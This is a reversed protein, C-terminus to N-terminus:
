LLESWLSGLIEQETLDRVKQGKKQMVVEKFKTNFEKKLLEVDEKKDLYNKWKDDSQKIADKFRKRLEKLEEM